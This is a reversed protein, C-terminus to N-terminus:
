RNFIPRSYDGIHELARCFECRRVSVDRRQFPRDCEECRYTDRTTRCTADHVGDIEAGHCCTEMGVM